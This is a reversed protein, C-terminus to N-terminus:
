VSCRAAQLRRAKLERARLVGFRLPPLCMCVHVPRHSSLVCSVCGPCAVGMSELMPVEGLPHHLQDSHQALVCPGSPAPVGRPQVVRPRGAVRDVRTPLGCRPSDQLYHCHAVHDRLLQRCCVGPLRCPAPCPRVDCAAACWLGACALSSSACTRGRASLCLVCTLGKPPFFFGLLFHVLRHCCCLCRPCCVCADSRTTQRPPPGSITGM